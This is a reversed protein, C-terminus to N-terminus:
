IGFNAKLINSSFSGSFCIQWWSAEQSFCVFVCIGVELVRWCERPVERSEQSKDPMGCFEGLVGLVGRANRLASSGRVAVPNKRVPKDRFILMTTFFIKLIKCRNPHEQYKGRGTHTKARGHYGPAGTQAKNHEKQHTEPTNKQKELSPGPLSGCVEGFSKKKQVNCRHRLPSVDNEFDWPDGSRRNKFKISPVNKCARHFTRFPLKNEQKKKGPKTSRSPM